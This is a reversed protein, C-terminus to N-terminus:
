WVEVSVNKRAVLGLSVAAKEQVAGPSTLWAYSLKLSRLQEDNELAIQRVNEILYSKRTVEVRVALQFFLTAFLILGCLINLGRM